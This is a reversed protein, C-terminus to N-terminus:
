ASASPSSCWSPACHSSAPHARGAARGWGAFWSGPASGRLAALAVIVVVFPVADQVGVSAWSPWWPKSTLLTILAQFSGLALGGITVAALSELRGVLAVALAPVVGLVLNTPNLGTVPAALIAVGGGVAASITWALAALRDPSYGMLIAARENEAGARTAIGVRVFRFYSWVAVALVIVIGALILSQVSLVAGAVTWTGQPLISPVKASNPGFRLVILAQLSIMIGVSAVVQAMVPSRRLPRFVLVHSLLAVVVSLAAGIVFAPVASMPGGLDFTGVFFVFEGDNRLRTYVYAGWAAFAGQAFNIIGTAKYAVVLGTATAAYFAGAGLGLVLFQLYLSM